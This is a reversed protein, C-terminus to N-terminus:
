ILVFCGRFLYCWTVILMSLVKLSSGRDKQLLQWRWDHNWSGYWQVLVNYWYMTSDTMSSETIINLLGPPLIGLLGLRGYELGLATM